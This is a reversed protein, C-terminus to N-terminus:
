LQETTSKGEVESMSKKVQEETPPKDYLGNVSVILEELGRYALTM